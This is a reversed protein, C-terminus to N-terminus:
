TLIHSLIVMALDYKPLKPLAISRGYRPILTAKSQDAGISTHRNAVIWDCGKSRLKKKANSIVNGTELAFGVLIQDDRAVKGLDELIDPNQTLRITKVPKKLKKKSYRAPRFDSVAAAMIIVNAKKALRMVARMMENCTVVDIRTVGEPTTLNVSGAILTVEAGLSHAAEALAFGMKGSSHNSIYRVPDIYERTPGATILVHM